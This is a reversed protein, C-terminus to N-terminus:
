RTQSKVSAFLALGILYLLIALGLGLWGMATTLFFSSSATSRLLIATYLLPAALLIGLTLKQDRASSIRRRVYEEEIRNMQLELLDMLASINGRYRFNFRVATVFDQFQEQDSCAQFHQLATDIPMGSQIRTVLSDVYTCMPEALGSERSREFAFLLDERM